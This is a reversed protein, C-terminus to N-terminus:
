GRARRRAKGRGASSPRAFKSVVGREAEAAEVQTVIMIVPVERPLRGGTVPVITMCHAAGVKDFHLIADFQDEDSLVLAQAVDQATQMDADEADLSPVEDTGVGMLKFSSSTDINPINALWNSYMNAKLGNQVLADTMNGDASNAQLVTVKRNALKDREFLETVLNRGDETLWEFVSSQGVVGKGSVVQSVSVSGSEVEVDFGGSQLQALLVQLENGDGAEVPEGNEDLAPVVASVGSNSFAVDGEEDGLPEMPIVKEGIMRPLDVYFETGIQEESAFFIAGKHSEVILKVISLGLGTGQQTRTDGMDAQTFKEFITAHASKPIGCGFDRISFRIRGRHVKLTVIIQKEEGGFKAANSMLNDMVQTLRDKDGMLMFGDDDAELNLRMSNKFKEAYFKNAEMAKDVIEAMDVPEMKFDMKGAEIKEMDLIDNILNVLRDCNNSAMSVMKNMQDPMEGIAGSLALGLAGKMSTLPTRLEHSVTAVFENKAKEAVKRATIDRYIAIFRPEDNEPQVYELSIEYPTGNGATVEWIMRRQPGEELAQCRLELAHTDSETLIDKARRDKWGGGVRDAILRQTATRNCYLLDLSGPRLVVVQDDVLELSDHFSEDSIGKRTQTMDTAVLAIESLENEAGSVPIVTCQAWAATGDERMIKLPGDWPSGMDMAAMIDAELLEQEQEGLFLALPQGLLSDRERASTECFSDNVHTIRGDPRLMCFVTHEEVASRYFSKSRIESELVAKQEEALIMNRRLQLVLFMLSLIIASVVGMIAWRYARYIRGAAQVLYNEYPRVRLSILLDHVAQYNQPAQWVVNGASISEASDSSINLMSNIVLALANEPVGPMAALVWEPYLPTSALFPFEPYTQQSIPAFDALDVAGEQALQELVGARIVGADVLGSQVAYVVERQNGGSFVLEGLTEAPDLRYRRFEQEALWWGAFDKESVAMVSRGNLQSLRSLGSDARAFVLAGIESYTRGEWMQAQSLVARAGSEVETAVFHAPNTLVFDLSRDLVGASLTEVSHPRVVFRYPTDLYESEDNLFEITPRWAELARTAGETSLVGITFVQTGPGFDSNQATAATARALLTVTLAALLVWFGFWRSLAKLGRWLTGNFAM